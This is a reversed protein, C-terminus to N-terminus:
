PSRPIDFFDADFYRDDGRLSLEVRIRTGYDTLEERVQVILNDRIFQRLFPQIDPFDSM